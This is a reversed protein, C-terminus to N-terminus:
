PYQSRQKFSRVQISSVETYMSDSFMSPEGAGAEVKVNFGAAILKKVSEPTQSV